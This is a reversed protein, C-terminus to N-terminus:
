HGATRVESSATHPQFTIITVVKNRFNFLTNVVTNASERLDTFHVHNENLTGSLAVTLRLPMLMVVGRSSGHRAALYTHALSSCPYKQLLLVSVSM